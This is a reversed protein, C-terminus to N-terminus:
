RSSRRGSLSRAIWALVAGLGIGTAAGTLWGAGLGVGVARQANEETVMPPGPEVPHPPTLAFRVRSEDLDIFAPEDWTAIWAAIILILQAFLNFFLMVVIAPGFVAAAPNGSLANIVLATGYQLVFLGIAGFIAGNWIHRWSERQRPVVIYIYCFTLWGAIMSLLPALVRLLASTIWSDGFGLWTAVQQAVNTSITALGFTIAIAVLLGGMRILNVAVKIPYPTTDREADFDTRWQADIANRLHGMWTAGAYLGTVLGVVGISTYNQLLSAIARELTDITAPDVGRLQATALRAVRTILDPRLEVVFFGMISFAVMVVPVVALVSFYAVGAGFQYGFRGNYRQVARQIHAIWEIRLIREIRNQVPRARTRLRDSRERVRDTVTM